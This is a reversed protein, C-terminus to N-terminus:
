LSAIVIKVVAIDKVSHITRTSANFVSIDVVIHLTLLHIFPRWGLIYLSLIQDSILLIIIMAFQIVATHCFSFLSGISDEEYCDILILM